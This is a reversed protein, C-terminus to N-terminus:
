RPGPERSASSSSLTTFRARSCTRYRRTFKVTGGGAIRARIEVAVTGATLGRLDIRATMHKNARRIPVQKGNVYTQFTATVTPGSVHNVGAGYNTRPFDAPYSAIEFGGNPGGQHDFPIKGGEKNLLAMVREAAM